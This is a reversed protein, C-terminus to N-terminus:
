NVIPCVSQKGVSHLAPCTETEECLSRSYVAQIGTGAKTAKPKPQLAETDEGIFPFLVAQRMLNRYSNYFIYLIDTSGHLLCKM